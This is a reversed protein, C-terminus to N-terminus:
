EVLPTAAYGFGTGEGAFKRRLDVEWRSRGTAADLRGVVGAPTAYYVHGDHWTPTAYPGPYAGAPQWRWGVRTRWAEAGSAAVHDPRFRAVVVTRSRGVMFPRGGSVLGTFRAADSAIVM